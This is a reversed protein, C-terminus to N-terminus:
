LAGFPSGFLTCSCLTSVPDALLLITGHGTAIQWRNKKKKPENETCLLKSKHPRSVLVFLDLGNWLIVWWRFYFENERCVFAGWVMLRDNPQKEPTTTTTTWPFNSCNANAVPGFYEYACKGTFDVWDDKKRQYIESIRQNPKVECTSFAQM